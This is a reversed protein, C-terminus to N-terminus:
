GFRDCAVCAFRVGFKAPSVQEWKSRLRPEIVIINDGISQEDLNKMVEDTAWDFAVM